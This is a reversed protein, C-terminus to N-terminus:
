LALLPAKFVMVLAKARAYAGFTRMLATQGPGISLRKASAPITRPALNSSRFSIQCHQYRLQNCGSSTAPYPRNVQRDIGGLGGPLHEHQIPAPGHSPPLQEAYSFKEKDQTSDEDNM